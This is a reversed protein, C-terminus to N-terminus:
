AFPLILLSRMHSFSLIGRGQNWKWRISDFYWKPHEQEKGLFRALKQVDEGPSIRKMSYNNYLAIVRTGGDNTVVVPLRIPISSIALEALIAKVAAYMTMRELLVIEGENEGLCEHLLGHRRAYGFLFEEEAVYGCHILPPKKLGEKL